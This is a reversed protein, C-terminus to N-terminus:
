LIQIWNGTGAATAYWLGPAAPVTSDVYFQPAAVTGTSVVNNTNPNGTGGLNSSATGGGGTGNNAIICLLAIIISSQMDGTIGQLPAALAALSNSDCAQSM